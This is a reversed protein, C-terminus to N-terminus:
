THNNDYFYLFMFLNLFQILITLFSEYHKSVQAKLM